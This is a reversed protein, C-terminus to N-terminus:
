RSNKEKDLVDRVTKALDAKVIPKYAFAKFGREFAKEQSIKNSYGTLLVVPIDNRINMLEIALKEGTMNPMTMDTVVLDFDNAKTKFLELAEVSSTRTTVNYGLKQLIQSGMKAIPLEDDVFMIRETGVPLDESEYIRHRKRKHTVPLYITFITGEGICTEVFIKGSYSEVIGHVMALGMGTGKGAEKTTFYPEFISDIIDPPIGAGSDAVSLEVYDGYNLNLKKGMERDVMIDRLNVNLIGGAEDMAHAANTCLNMIIQHVQTQNGLILSDSDINSKIEISTPISSRIFKLAEKVILGVQVPSLKEESQRAFTLIQGVLEKARIGATYVEQLNDEILSGKEVEDLSLETFGLISSLINNFDHAIGGALNGIAEMKQAQRLHEDAQIQQEQLNKMQTIDTAIQIHVFRGDIWKIARDYNLYFTKTIPNQGEWVVVGKPNGSKDLLKEKPCYDCIQDNKTFVEYCVQGSFNGGFSDVMFKNMFLIEHTDMDSVYITADISNLVTLFTDHAEKRKDEAEQRKKMFEIIIIGFIAFLIVVMIRSVVQYPPVKLLLTDLYSGPESFILKKLNYEFSLFSWISDLTWYFICVVGIIAYGKRRVM